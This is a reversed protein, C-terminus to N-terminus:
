RGVQEAITLRYQSPQGAGGCRTTIDGAQELARLHRQVTRVSLRARHAITRIPIFFWSGGVSLDWPAAAALVLLVTRAGSTSLSHDLVQTINHFSM